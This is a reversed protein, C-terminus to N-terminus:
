MCFFKALKSTSIYKIISVLRSLKAVLSSQKPSLEKAVAWFAKPWALSVMIRGLATELFFCITGGSCFASCYCLFCSKLTNDDTFNRLDQKIDKEEIVLIVM